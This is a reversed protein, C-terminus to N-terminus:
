RTTLKIEIRRNRRYAEESDGPDLPQFEAFGRAAVRDPPIGQTVLFRAVAIARATSLEWNSPFRSSSIPRRDTHGDVQLVWPLDPPIEKTIEKLAGALKALQSQGEPSIDASGSPFLVESQFVFRDGVIRVDERSGLAQRLRGFFDSRYQSLEEVKSALAVNLRAGLDAIQANQRDIEQQKLGLAQDIAALQRGLTAIQDTLTRVQQLAKDRESVTTDRAQSASAAQAQWQQITDKDATVVKQAEALQQQLRGQQDSLSAVQEGLRDREADARALQGKLDDRERFAQSLDSNLRALTRRLDAAADQELGLQSALDKVQGQLRTVTENRGQLLQGLFFQGLVFVILLFIISLLLTSIADVFGPWIDVQERSRRLRAV